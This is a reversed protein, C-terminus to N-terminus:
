TKVELGGMLVFGRVILRHKSDRTGTSKDIAGGMVAVVQNSVSWDPPVRIEIGGWVVFVDIVAEGATAAERFDAEIGGMVATFDARQFAASSIRRQAGSWFAFDSIRQDGIAGPEKQWARTILAVGVGILFLPWLQGLSASYGLMRAGTLWVGVGILLGASVRASRDCARAYMAAGVVIFGVPWFRLLPGAQVWGLNQATLLVGATIILVGLVAQPTVGSRRPEDRWM